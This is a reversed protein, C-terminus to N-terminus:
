TLPMPGHLVLKRVEATMDPFANGKDENHSIKGQKRTSWITAAMRGLKRKSWAPM